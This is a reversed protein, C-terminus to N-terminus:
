RADLQKGLAAFKDKWAASKVDPYLLKFQQWSQRADEPEVQQLCALQYYKAEFWDDSGAPLGSLLKRWHPLAQAYKAAHHWALGARRLYARDSPLAAVLRELREAAEPWQGEQELYSALRSNAALANRSSSITDADEGVLAVLRRYIGIAAARQASKEAEPAAQLAADAQRAVIILAPLEYPSGAAHEALWAAESRVTKQEKKHQAIQLLRYHYEAVVVQSEAVGPVDPAVIALWGGIVQWDPEPASALVDVALLAAKLRLEADAPEHAGALFNQATQLLLPTAKGRKAADEKAQSWQQHYLQTLEFQAALYSPQDPKINALVSISEQNSGGAQRLKALLVDIRAANPSDPFDRKVAQAAEVAAPIYKKDQGALVQYSGFEMWAAQAASEVHVEKLTPIIDHFQKAAALYEGLRFHCWALHFRAQALAAPDSAAQPDSAAERLKEAAAQYDQPQKSKEAAFFQQRGRLWKLYFSDGTTSGIGYKEVLQGLTEFQRLKALGRVGLEGLLQRTEAPPDGGGYAAKILAICLSARGASAESSFGEVERKAFAVAEDWFQPWLYGQLEWFGAQDRVSAPTAPHSLWAFAARSRDFEKRAAHSLGLGIVARARWISELGLGEPELKEYNSDASLDLLSLFADRATELLADDPQGPKRFVALYYNAWGGFFAARMSAIQLRAVEAEAAAKASEKLSEAESTRKAIEEALQEQKATLQPAIQSFVRVAAERPAPQGPEDVWKLLEAEAAQYRAQLVIVGLKPTEASPHDSQLAEVKKITAEFLAPDSAAALLREAYADALQRALPERENAPASELRRELHRTRLETLGLRNLYDLLPDQEASTLAGAHLLLGALVAASCLRLQL